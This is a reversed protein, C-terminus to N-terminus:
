VNRLSCEVSIRRRYKKQADTRIIKVCRTCVNTQLGISINHCERAIKWEKFDSSVNIMDLEEAMIM